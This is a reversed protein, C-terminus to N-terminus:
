IIFFTEVSLFLSLKRNHGADPQLFCWFLFILSALFMLVHYSIIKDGSAGARSFVSMMWSQSSRDQDSFTFRIISISHNFVSFKIGIWLLNQWLVLSEFFPFCSQLSKAVPLLYKMKRLINSKKSNTSLWTCIRIM